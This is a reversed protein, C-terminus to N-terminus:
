PPVCERLDLCYSYMLMTLYRNDKAGEILFMILSVLSLARNNQMVKAFLKVNLFMFLSILTFSILIM